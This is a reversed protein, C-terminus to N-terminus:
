ASESKRIRAEHPLELGKFLVVLIMLGPVHSLHIAAEEGWLNYKAGREEKGLVQFTDPVVRRPAQM